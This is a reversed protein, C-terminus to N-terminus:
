YRLVMFEAYGRTFYGMTVSSYGERWGKLLYLGAPYTSL